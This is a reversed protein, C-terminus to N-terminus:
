GVWAGARMVRQPHWAADTVVLDAPNGAALGVDHRGLVGAPRISAAAVIQVADLGAGIQRRVVDLLRTTGGAISGGDALRAVGDRVEVARPGLQYDGDAMGAAAMADTVLVVRDGVLAMVASVTEDALHVGDAILELVADGSAAASLAGLVAGPGRHHIPAMGNFLHTVV